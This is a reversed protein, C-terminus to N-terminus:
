WLVAPCYRAYGSMIMTEPQLDALILETNITYRAYGSMIMTEPAQVSTDAVSSRSQATIRVLLVSLRM